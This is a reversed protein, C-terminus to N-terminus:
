FTTVEIPCFYIESNNNTCVLDYYYKTKRNKLEIEGFLDGPGLIIM